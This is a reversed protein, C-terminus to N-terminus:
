RRGAARAQIAADGATILRQILTPASRAILRERSDPPYRDSHLEDLAAIVAARTQRWAAAEQRSWHNRGRRRRAIGLLSAHRLIAARTRGLDASLPGAGEVPYRTVLAEDEAATLRRRRVGRSM